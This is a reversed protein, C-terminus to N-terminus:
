RNGSILSKLSASILLGFCSLVESASHKSLYRCIKKKGEIKSHIFGYCMGTGFVVVCISLTVYTIQISPM